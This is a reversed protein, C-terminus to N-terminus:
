AKMREKELVCYKNIVTEPTDFATKVGSDLLLVKDCLRSVMNMDHSSFFITKQQKKLSIIYEFCKEKFERDGAALIEDMLLVDKCTNIIISFALREKMGLSLTRVEANIFESLGSFGIISETKKFLERRNLGLIAGFLFINEKLSLDPLFGIGLQLVSTVEGNVTVSGSTPKYIGAIIRLLTSKGCGNPGIIGVIEGRNIQLDINDLANIVKKDRNGTAHNVLTKFLSSRGKGPVIFKKSIGSLIVM